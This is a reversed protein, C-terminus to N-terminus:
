FPERIPIQKSPACPWICLLIDEYKYAEESQSLKLVNGVSEGTLVAQSEDM